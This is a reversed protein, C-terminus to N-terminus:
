NAQSWKHHRRRVCFRQLTRPRFVHASFFPTFRERSELDGTSIMEHPESLVGRCCPAAPFQSCPFVGCSCCRIQPGSPISGLTPSLHLLFLRGAPLTHRPLAEMNSLKACSSPLLVRHTWWRSHTTSLEAAAVVVSRPMSSRCSVVFWLACARVGCTNM